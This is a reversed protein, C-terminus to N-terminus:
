CNEPGYIEKCYEEQMEKLAWYDSPKNESIDVIDWNDIAENEQEHRYQKWQRRKNRKKKDAM